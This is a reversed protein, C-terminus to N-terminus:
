DSLGTRSKAVGYVTARWAGRDMPNELCSYQLPNGNGEAPSRGSRPNSGPDGANHASLKSGSGGPFGKSVDSPNWIGIRGHTLQTVQASQESPLNTGEDPCPTTLTSGGPSHSASLTSGSIAPGQHTLARGSVMFRVRYTYCCGQPARLVYQPRLRM